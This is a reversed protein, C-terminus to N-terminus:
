VKSMALNFRASDTEKRTNYRFDFEHCYQHMYKRSVHHYCGTISRKIHSWYGEITNTHVEGRVYEYKKHEIHQHDYYADLYKYAKWEDSMISSEPEVYQLIISQITGRETDPVPMSKVMGNRQLMGFVPTKELTSRGQTHKKRKKYHKWKAKGGIYTEDVEVVKELHQPAHQGLMTRIKMMMHWAAKQTIGLHKALQVSSVGKKNNLALYVALFWKTLPIKSNAFITGTKANFQKLCSACKYRIGDKFAYVKDHNCHSCTVVNNWKVKSLHQLCKKEDSFTSIVEFLNTCNLM